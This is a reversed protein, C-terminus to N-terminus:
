QGAKGLSISGEVENGFVDWGPRRRRAFLELYKRGPYLAEIKRYQDDPKRSHEQIPSLIVSQIGRDEVRLIKGKTALLCPESNAWENSAYKAAQEPTPPSAWRACEGSGGVNDQHPKVEILKATM